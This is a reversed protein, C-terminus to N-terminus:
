PVINRSNVPKDSIAPTSGKWRMRCSTFPTQVASRQGSWREGRWGPPCTSAATPVSGCWASPSRSGPSTGQPTNRGRGPRGNGCPERELARPGHPVTVRRLSDEPPTTVWRHAASREVPDPPHTMATWPQVPIIALAQWVTLAPRRHGLPRRGRLPDNM